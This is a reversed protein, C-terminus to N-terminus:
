CAKKNILHDKKLGHRRSLLIKLRAKLLYYEKVFFGGKKSEAISISVESDTTDTAFCGETILLVVTLLIGNKM